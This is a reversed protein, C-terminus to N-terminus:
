IKFLSFSLGAFFDTIFKEGGLPCARTLFIPVDNQQVFQLLPSPHFEKLRSADSHLRAGLQSGAQYWNTMQVWYKVLEAGM